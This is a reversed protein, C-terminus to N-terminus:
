DDAARERHYRDTIVSQNGAKQRTTISGVALFRSISERTCGWTSTYKHLMQGHRRIRWADFGSVFRWVEMQLSELEPSSPHTVRWTEGCPARRGRHVARLSAPHAGRSSPPTMVHWRSTDHPSIVTRICSEYLWDQCRISRSYFVIKLLLVVDPLEEPPPSSFM